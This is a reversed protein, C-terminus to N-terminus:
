GEGLPSPVRSKAGKERPLLTPSSPLDDGCEAVGISSVKPVPAQILLQGDSLRDAVLPVIARCVDNM